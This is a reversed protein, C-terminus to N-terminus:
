ALDIREVGGDCKWFIWRLIIRGDVSTDKLHDTERLSGMLVIYSDRREGTYAVHGALRM